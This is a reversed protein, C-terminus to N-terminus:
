DSEEAKLAIKFIAGAGKNSEAWIRGGMASVAMKCFYLGLGIGRYKGNKRLSVQNYKDFIIEKDVEDLGPGQDTISAIYESNYSELKLFISQGRSSHKLANYILNDVVRALYYRDTKAIAPKKPLDLNLSVGHDFASGSLANVSDKLVDRLDILNLDLRIAFYAQNASDLLDQIIAEARELANKSSRVLAAHLDNEPNYKGSILFKTLTKMSAIPAQLDHVILSIFELNEDFKAQNNKDINPKITQNPSEAPKNYM